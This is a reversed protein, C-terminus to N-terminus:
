VVGWARGAADIGATYRGRGRLAVVIQMCVLRVGIPEALSEPRASWEDPDFRGWLPIPWM